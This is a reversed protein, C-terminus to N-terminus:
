ATIEKAIDEVMAVANPFVRKMQEYSEENAMAADFVEAFFERATAGSRRHYSAGHGIGLPYSVKTCGEIIDSINGYKRKNSRAGEGLLMDITHQNKDAARRLGSGRSSANRFANWDKKIVSDLEGLNSQYTWSAGSVHDILHGFEHFVVQYPTQHSYGGSGRSANAAHLHIGRDSSRYFAGDRLESDVVKLESSFRRYAAAIDPHRQEAAVVIREMADAYEDGLKERVQPAFSQLSSIEGYARNRRLVLGQLKEQAEAKSSFATDRRSKTRELYELASDYRNKTREYARIGDYQRDSEDLAAYWEDIRAQLRMKEERNEYGRLSLVRNQIEGIEDAQDYLRKNEAEVAAKDLDAAWAYQEMEARAEDVMKQAEKVRKESWSPDSTASPEVRKIEDELGAIEDRLAKIREEKEEQSKRAREETQRLKQNKWDDYSMGDPLRSLRDPDEMDIGEFWAVLTCRCNYVYEPPATPDAPFELEVGDVKFKEGVPVHQGDLQRHSHRTRMDLTAMWQQELDIGIRKARRFSDVRGANEAGTIATRAARVASSEDMHMVRMLRETAQPISDGQLIAQTIASSFKQKNWRKDKRKDLRAEPIPPLLEPQDRILRRVTSQDYLDFSHTDYGIGKEIDFAARNANEAYVYPIVDNIADMALEDAHRADTALIDAIDQVYRKQAAQGKLWADYEERTVKGSALLKKWEENKEDYEALMAKVKGSMERRAKGYESKFRKKLAEIQEDTWGHAIDVARKGAAHARAEAESGYPGSVVTYGYSELYRRASGENIAWKWKSLQKSTVSRVDTRTEGEDALYSIVFWWTTEEEDSGIHKEADAKSDYPGSVINYGRAILNERADRPTAAKVVVVRNRGNFSWVFWFEKLAM